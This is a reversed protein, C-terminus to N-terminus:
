NYTVIIDFSGQYAGGAQNSSVQLTGGISIDKKGNRMRGTAGPDFAFSRLVMTAGTSNTLTVSAPLMLAYDQNPHSNLQVVAAQPFGGASTVGGTTTLLGSPTITATGAGNVVLTGFSFDNRVILDTQAKTTMGVPGKASARVGMLGRCGQASAASLLCSWLLFGIAIKLLMSSYRMTNAQDTGM